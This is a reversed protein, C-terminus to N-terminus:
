RLTTYSRKCTIDHRRNEEGFRGNTNENYSYTFIPFEYRKDNQNIFREWFMTVPMYKSKLLIYEFLFKVQVSLKKFYKKFCNGNFKAMSHVYSAVAPQRQWMNGPLTIAVRPIDGNEEWLQGNGSCASRAWLPIRDPLRQAGFDSIKLLLVFAM